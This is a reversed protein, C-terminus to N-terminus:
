GLAEPPYIISPYSTWPPSSRLGPSKERAWYVSRPFWWSPYSIDLLVLIVPRQRTLKPSYQTKTSTLGSTPVDLHFDPKSTCSPSLGLLFSIRPSDARTHFTPRTNTVLSLCRLGYVSTRSRPSAPPPLHPPHASAESISSAFWVHVWGVVAKVRKNWNSFALLIQSINSIM